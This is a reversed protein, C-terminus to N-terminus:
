WGESDSSIVRISTDSLFSLIVAKVFTFMVTDNEENRHYSNSDSTNLRFNSKKRGNSVFNYKKYAQQFKRCIYQYKYMKTFDLKQTYPYYNM